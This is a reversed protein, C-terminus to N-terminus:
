FIILCDELETIWENFIHCKERIKELTIEQICKDSIYLKEYGIKTDKAIKELRKSPATERSNNINEPEGCKSLINDIVVQNCGLSKSLVGSDSFLLAEFEYMSFYPIFRRLLSEDDLFEGLKKKTEEKARKAKEKYNLVSNKADEITEIGPWSKVGYYDFMTTVYDYKFHEKEKNKLASKIDIKIKDFNINGGVSKTKLCVNKIKFFNKLIKDVFDLETDGEVIILIQLPKTM